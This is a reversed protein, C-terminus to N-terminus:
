MVSLSPAAGFSFRSTATAAGNSAIVAPAMAASPGFYFDAALVSFGRDDKKYNKGNTNTHVPLAPPPADFVVGINTRYWSRAETLRHATNEKKRLRLPPPVVDTEGKMLIENSVRHKTIM